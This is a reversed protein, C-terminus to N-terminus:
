LISKACGNKVNEIFSNITDKSSIGCSINTQLVDTFNLNIM